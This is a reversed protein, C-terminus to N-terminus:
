SGPPPVYTVGYKACIDKLKGSSQLKAIAEGLAYGLDRSREDVAMGVTWNNRVIDPMDPAIFVAKGGAEFLTGETESRVGMIAATEGNLFERAGQPGKIFHAINNILAGDEFTMLFYDSVTALKVGIKQKRFVEFSSEAPVRKPDIAVAITEQFYPNSISVQKNRSALEPDTPVHLMVDGTGGGTLPGKWVNGRLDDDVDEGQIRLVIEPRVGLEGALAVGIDADIGKAVGNETWSFPKNDEYAIVRLTKTELVQDLPRARLSPAPLALAMAGLVALALLATRQQPQATM